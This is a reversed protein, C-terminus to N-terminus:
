HFLDAKNHLFEKKHVHTHIDLIKEPLFDKLEEEWIKKDYETVEFLAM